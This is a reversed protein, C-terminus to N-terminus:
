FRSIHVTRRRVAKRIDAHIWGWIGLTMFAVGLKDDWPTNSFIMFCIISLPILSLPLIRTWRQKYEHKDGWIASFIGVFLLVYSVWVM